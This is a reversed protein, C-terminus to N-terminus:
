ELRREKVASEQTAARERKKNKNKKGEGKAKWVNGL